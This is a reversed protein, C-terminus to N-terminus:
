RKRTEEEKRNGKEKRQGGISEGGKRELGEKM